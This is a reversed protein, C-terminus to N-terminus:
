SCRPFGLEEQQVLLSFEKEWTEEGSSSASISTHTSIHIMDRCYKDVWSISAGYEDEDLEGMTFLNKEFFLEQNKQFLGLAQNEDFKNTCDELVFFISHVENAHTHFTDLPQFIFIKPKGCTLVIGNVGFFKNCFNFEKGGVTNMGLTDRDVWDISSCPSKKQQDM